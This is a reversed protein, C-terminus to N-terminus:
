HPNDSETGNNVKEIKFIKYGQGRYREIVEDATDKTLPTGPKGFLDFKNHSVYSIYTDFPPYWLRITLLESM